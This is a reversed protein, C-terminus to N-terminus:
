KLAEIKILIVCSSEALEDSTDQITEVGLLVAQLEMCPTSKVELNKSVVRNKVFLFSVEGTSLDEIFQM